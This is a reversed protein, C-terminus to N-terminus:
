WRLEEPTLPEESKPPMFPKETKGIMKIFKSEASKGPTIIKGSKGGGDPRRLQCYRVQRGEGRRQPLVPM